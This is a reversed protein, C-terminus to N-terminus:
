ILHIETVETLTETRTLCAAAAAPTAALATWSDLFSSGDYNARQQAGGLRHTLFDLFHLTTHFGLATRTAM